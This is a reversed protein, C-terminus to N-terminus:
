INIEVQLADTFIRLIELSANWGGCFEPSLAITLVEVNSMSKSIEEALYHLYIDDFTKRYVNDNNDIFFYDIDLNVIWKFENSEKIWYEINQPLDYFHTEYSNNYGIVEEFGNGDKHTAFISRCFLNPYLKKLIPIYNDFRFIKTTKGYDKVLYDLNCYEDIKSLKIDFNKSLISNVWSETNSNLLDYHRDIHFLNYKKTIDIKQMWCWGAALHNDMVYINDSNTLLNLEYTGSKNKGKFPMLNISTKM